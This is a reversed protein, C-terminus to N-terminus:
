RRDEMTGTFSQEVTVVAYLKENEAHIQRCISENIEKAHKMEGPSVVVDFIINTHTDGKVMRFDHIRWAPNKKKIIEATMQKYQELEPDDIVIPDMHITAECQFKKELEKEINDIMDHAKLIDSKYSIEAHLSIMRRGPGYDHIVLDHVGLVGDHSKVVQYVDAVLDRSPAEGLLPQVTEKAANWGTMLVFVAVIVGIYGDLNWGSVAFILMGALVASTSICDSLSDAATARMTDSDIRRGLERNFRAMWLKIFVSAVLIVISIPKFLLEEPHIIKEVSSKLLELGMMLIAASIFLGSLYEVRGHGFPHEPDAPKGAMKFGILTVISSAADSLNNFADAMISVAGTIYGAFLKILCLLVNCVIGVCGSLVGYAQRVRPHSTDEPHKVFTKILLNIM